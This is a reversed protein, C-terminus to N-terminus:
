PALSTRDLATYRAGAPGLDSQFLAVFPVVFPATPPDPFRGSPPRHGKRVRAVTVHPRFARQEAEHVGAAVLAGAVAAQVESGRGADDDLDVALVRPRRSPLGTLARPSLEPAALGGVAAAITTAITEVLGGDRWGLFALTVHLADAHVLRLAEDGGLVTGAWAAIEERRDEPLELAVFLRARRHAEPHPLM